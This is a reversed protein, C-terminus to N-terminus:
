WLKTGGINYPSLKFTKYDLLAEATDYRNLFYSLRSRINNADTDVDDAEILEIARLYSEILNAQPRTPVKEKVSKLHTDQLLQYTGWIYLSQIPNIKKSGVKKDGYIFHLEDQAEELSNVGLYQHLYENLKNEFWSDKNNIAIPSNGGATIKIDTIFDKGKKQKPQNLAIYLKLMDPRVEHIYQQYLMDDYEGESIPVETIRDRYLLAAMFILACSAFDENYLKTVYSEMITKPNFSDPVTVVINETTALAFKVADVGWDDNSKCQNALEKEEPTLHFVKKTYVQTLENSIDDYTFGFCRNLEPYLKQITPIDFTVKLM